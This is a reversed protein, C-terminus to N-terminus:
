TAGGHDKSTPPFPMEVSSGCIGVVSGREVPDREPIDFGEGRLFVRADTTAQDLQRFDLLLSGIRMDWTPFLGLPDDRRKWPRLLDDWSLGAIPPQVGLHAMAIARVAGWGDWTAWKRFAPGSEIYGDIIRGTEAEVRARTGEDIRDPLYTGLYIVIAANRRRHYSRKRFVNFPWM